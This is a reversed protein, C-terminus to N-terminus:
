AAGDDFLGLEHGGDRLYAVPDLRRNIRQTILPLYEAEREIAVCKVGELLAAEVTTGSGSFPDLVIGGPSPTVLKVLWRMLSLPKVTPHSVGDHRIREDTSAKATYFFRSAGGFDANGRSFAKPNDGSKDLITESFTVKGGVQRMGGNVGASEGSMQDLAEAQSEDLVVNAPWRGALAVGDLRSRCTCSAASREGGEAEVSRTRNLCADQQAGGLRNAAPEGTPQRGEGWQPSAGDRQATPASGSRSGDGDSTGSSRPSRPQGTASQGRGVHASNGSACLREAGGGMAGRQVSPEAPPVDDSLPVSPQMYSSAEGAGGSIPSEAYPQRLDPLGHVPCRAGASGSGGSTSGSSDPRIRTGDINLAGCGWELVNSAVTGQLPKRAVIIPEHAPKLATGWGQWRIAEPMAARTENVTQNSSDGGYTAGAFAHGIPVSREGIVARRDWAEGPTGKRGNLRWVEADLETAGPIIQRLTLWNEVSPCACRHQLRSLWWGGMDSTGMREDLDSRTIGAAQALEALRSTVALVSARDDRTRDIAKSVDLSKPFGSGYLWAISDRIEFGADEIACALRHSTRTGGFALLHGGPKMVRYVRRWTEPDFAVGTADWHQGMFGGTSIRSRGAPSNLNLSAVGTGGRKGSTLDYPPDTVCCDVSNDLLTPLVDLSDGHHLTVRDDSYHVTM